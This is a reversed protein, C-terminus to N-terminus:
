VAVTTLFTASIIALFVRMEDLYDVAYPMEQATGVCIAEDAGALRQRNLVAKIEECLLLLTDLETQQNTVTNQLRKLVGIDIMVTANDNAASGMERVDSRPSVKGQVAAANALDFKPVYVREFTVSQSFEAGNLASVIADAIKLCPVTM